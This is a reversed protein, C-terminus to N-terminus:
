LPEIEHMQERKHLKLKKKPIQQNYNAASPINRPGFKSGDTKTYIIKITNQRECGLNDRFREVSNVGLETDRISTFSHTLIKVFCTHINFM